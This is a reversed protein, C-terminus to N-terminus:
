DIIGGEKRYKLLKGNREIYTGTQNTYYTQGGVVSESYGPYKTSM